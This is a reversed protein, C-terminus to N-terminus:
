AWRGSPCRGNIALQWLTGKRENSWPQRWLIKMTADLQDSVTDVIAATMDASGEASFAGVVVFCTRALRPQAEVPGVSSFDRGSLPPPSPAAQEEEAQQRQRSSTVCVTQRPGPLGVLRDLIIRM